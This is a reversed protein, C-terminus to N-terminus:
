MVWAWRVSERGGNVVSVAEGKEDIYDNMVSGELDAYETKVSHFPNLEIGEEDELPLGADTYHIVYIHYTLICSVNPYSNHLKTANYVNLAWVYSCICLVFYVLANMFCEFVCYVLMVSSVKM